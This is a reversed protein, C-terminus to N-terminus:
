TGEAEKPTLTKLALAHIEGGVAPGIAAYVMRHREVPKKGEFASSVVRLEFHDNTGTMDRVEAKAGPIGAEVIQRIKDTSFM